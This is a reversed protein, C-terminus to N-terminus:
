DMRDGVSQGRGRLEEMVPVLESFTRITRFPQIEHMSLPDQGKHNIWVSRIGLRQPAVVEWQYNDGIMWVEEPAAGLLKLAHEYVRSDPKGSGFEGEIVIHDFLPALQFRDIKCRQPASAGNTLLALPIGLSKLYHITDIAGPFVAVKEDREIGYDAAILEALSRDEIGLLGLASGIIETRAMTLDLRGRRHREADSWYWRAHEKIAAVITGVDPGNEGNMYKGCVSVWCSDLDIGQEYALITDDMDVLLAKPLLRNEGEVDVRPVLKQLPEQNDM